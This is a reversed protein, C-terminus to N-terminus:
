HQQYRQGKGQLDNNDRSIRIRSQSQSKKFSSSHLLHSPTDTAPLGRHTLRALILQAKGLDASDDLWDILEYSM